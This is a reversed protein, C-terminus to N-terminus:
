VLWGYIARLLGVLFTGAFVVALLITSGLSVVSASIAAAALLLSYGMQEAPTGQGFVALTMREVQAFIWRLTGSDTVASVSM